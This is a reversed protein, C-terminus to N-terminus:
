SVPASAPAASNWQLIEDDRRKVLIPDVTGADYVWLKLQLPVAAYNGANLDRLLTCGPVPLRTPQAFATGGINFVFSVLTDFQTETLPVVVVQNIVAETAHLDHQLLFNVQEEDLGNRWDIMGGTLFLKGSSLEDKTLRHGVGITPFGARDRYMVYRRGERREIAIIGPLSTTRPPALDALAAAPHDHGRRQPVPAKKAKV